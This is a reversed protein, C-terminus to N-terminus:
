RDAFGPLVFRLPNILPDTKQRFEPYLYVFIIPM